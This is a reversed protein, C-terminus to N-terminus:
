LLLKRAWKRHRDKLYVVAHRLSDNAHGEGGRHWFEVNHLDESSITKGENPTQLVMKSGYKGTLFEIVGVGRLSWPAQSKKATAPTIIFNECVVTLDEGYTSIVEEAKDYFDRVGLEMTWLVVPNDQESIDILSLGTLLGPDVCFLYKPSQTAM